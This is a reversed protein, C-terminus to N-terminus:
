PYSKMIVPLYISLPAFNEPINRTTASICGAQDSCLWATNEVYVPRCVRPGLTYVADDESDVSITLVKTKTITDTFPRLNIPFQTMLLGNGMNPQNALITQSPEGELEVTVTIMRGDFEPPLSDTWSTIDMFPLLVDMTSAEVSPIELTYTFTTPAEAFVRLDREDFPPDKADFLFLANLERPNDTVVTVEGAEIMASTVTTTWVSAGFANHTSTLLQAPQGEVRPANNDTGKMLLWMESPNTNPPIQVEITYPPSVPPQRTVGHAWFRTTDCSIAAPLVRSPPPTPEPTPCAASIGEPQLSPLLAVRARFSVQGSAGPSKPGLNWVVMRPEEQDAAPITSNPVLTLNFPLIDTITIIQTILSTNAYSITYTIVDGERVPGSPVNSKEIFLPPIYFTNSVFQAPVEGFNNTRGGLVYISGHNAYVSTHSHLGPEVPLTLGRTASIDEWDTLIGSSDLITASYVKKSVLGDNRGGIVYITGEPSVVATLDSLRQLLSKTPTWNSVIGNSISAYQVSDTVILNGHGDPVYGGMVYILQGYAVAAHAARAPTLESTLEWKHKLGGTIVDIQSYLVDNRIGGDWGGLVYLRDGVIVSAHHDRKPFDYKARTWSRIAGQSDPRSYFTSPLFDAGSQFDSGSIGGTVYIWGSNSTAAAAYAISIPSGDVTRFGKEDGIWPGLSGDAQITASFMASSYTKPDGLPVGGIIYIVQNNYISSVPAGIPEHLSTTQEWSLSTNKLSPDNLAFLMWGSVLMVVLGPILRLIASSTSGFKM